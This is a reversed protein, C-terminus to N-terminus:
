RIPAGVPQHVHCHSSRLKTPLFLGNAQWLPFLCARGVSTTVTPAAPINNALWHGWFCATAETFWTLSLIDWHQVVLSSLHNPGCCGRLYCHLKIPCNNQKLIVLNILTFLLNLLDELFLFIHRATSPQHLNRNDALMPKNLIADTYALLHTVSQNLTRVWHWRWLLLLHGSM